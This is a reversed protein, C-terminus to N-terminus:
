EKSLAWILAGVWGVFMWGLLINLAAIAVANPHNKRFAIYTPICYIGAVITLGVIGMLIIIINEM